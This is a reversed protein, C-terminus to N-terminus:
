LSKDADRLENLMRQYCIELYGQDDDLNYHSLFMTIAKKVSITPAFHKIGNVWGFMVLHDQRRKYFKNLACESIPPEM